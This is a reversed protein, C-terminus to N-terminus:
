SGSIEFASQQPARRPRRGRARRSCSRRASVRGAHHQIRFEAKRPQAVSTVARDAPEPSRTRSYRGHGGRKHGIVLYAGDGAKKRFSFQGRGCNRSRAGQNPPSRCVMRFATRRSWASRSGQDPVRRVKAAEFPSRRSPTICRARISRFWQDNEDMTQRAAFVTGIDTGARAVQKLGAKIYEPEIQAAGPRGPFIAPLHIM